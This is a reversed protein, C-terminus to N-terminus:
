ETDIAMSNMVQNTLGEISIGKSAQRFLVQQFESYRSADFCKDVYPDQGPQCENFSIDKLHNITIDSCSAWKISNPTGTPYLQDKLGQAFVKTTVQDYCCYEYGRRVCGLLWTKKDCYSKVLQCQGHNLFKNTKLHHLDWGLADEQSTCTNISSLANTYLDTLITVAFGCPACVMSLAMKAAMMGIDGGSLGGGSNKSNENNIHSAAQSVKIGMCITQTAKLYADSSIAVVDILISNVDNVGLTQSDSSIMYHSKLYEQSTVTGISALQAPTMRLPHQWPKLLEDSPMEGSSWGVLNPLSAGISAMCSNYAQTTSSNDNIGSYSQLMKEALIYDSERPAALVFATQAATMVIDGQTINIFSSNNGIVSADWDIGTINKLTDKASDLIGPANPVQGANNIGNQVLNTQAGATNTLNSGASLNLDPKVQIGSLDVGLADSIGGVTSNYGNTLSNTINDQVNGAFEGAKDLGTYQLTNNYASNFSSSIGDKFENWNRSLSGITSNYASQYANVAQDLASQAANLADTAQAIESASAGIEKLTNVSNQLQNVTENATVIGQEAANTVGAGWQSIQNMSSYASMAYSAITMPDSLYSFDWKKGSVCKGKWGSWIHQSGVEIMSVKTAAEEFARSFDKTEYGVGLYNYELEGDRNVVNYKACGTQVDTRTDCRYQAVKATSVTKGTHDTIKNTEKEELLVCSNDAYQECSNQTYCATNCEIQSSFFNGEIDGGINEGGKYSCTFGTKSVGGVTKTLSSCTNYSRCNQTCSDEDQWQQVKSFENTLGNKYDQWDTNTSCMYKSTANPNIPPNSYSGYCRYKRNEYVKLKAVFVRNPYPLPYVMKIPMITGNLLDKVIVKDVANNKVYEDNPSNLSSGTKSNKGGYVGGGWEVWDDERGASNESIGSALSMQKGLKLQTSTLYNMNAFDNIDLNEKAMLVNNKNYFYLEYAGAFPFMISLTATTNDWTRLHGSNSPYHPFNSSFTDPAAEVGDILVKTSSYHNRGSAFPTGTIYEMESNQQISVIDTNNIPVVQDFSYNGSNRLCSLPVGDYIKTANGGKIFEGCDYINSIQTDTFATPGTYGLLNLCNKVDNPGFNNADNVCTLINNLNTSENTSFSIGKTNLCTKLNSSMEPNAGAHQMNCYIKTFDGEITHRIVYIDDDLQGNGRIRVNIVNARSDQVTNSRVCDPDASYSDPEGSLVDVSYETFDRTKQVERVASEIKTSMIPEQCILKTQKFSNIECTVERGDSCTGKYGSVNGSVDFEPKNEDCYIYEGDNLSGDENTSAPKCEYPFVLNEERETCEKQDFITSDPCQYQHTVLNHKTSEQKITNNVVTAGELKDVEGIVTDIRTCKEILNTGCNNVYCEKQEPNDWCSRSITRDFYTTCTTKGGLYTVGNEYRKCTKYVIPPKTNKRLDKIFLDNSASTNNPAVYEREIRWWPLCITVDNPLGTQAKPFVKCEEGHPDAIGYGIYLKKDSLSSMDIDDFVKLSIEDPMVDFYQFYKLDSPEASQTTNVTELNWTGRDTARPNETAAFLAVISIYTFFCFTFISKM